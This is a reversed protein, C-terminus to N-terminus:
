EAAGTDRYELRQFLHNEEREHRHYEELLDNIRTRIRPDTPSVGESYSLVDSVILRLEALFGPHEGLVSKLQGASEPHNALIEEMVENEEEFRFHRYLEDHLSLLRQSLAVAWSHSGEAGTEPRPSSVFEELNAVVAQLHRHQKLVQQVWEKTLTKTM